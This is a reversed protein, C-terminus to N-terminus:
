TFQLRQMLLESPPFHLQSHSVVLLERLLFLFFWKFVDICMSPFSFFTVSSYDWNIAVMMGKRFSVRM